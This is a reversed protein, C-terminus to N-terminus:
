QASALLAEVKALLKNYAVTLDVNYTADIVVGLKDALITMKQPVSVVQEKPSGDSHMEYDTGSYPEYATAVPSKEIQINSLTTSENIATGMAIYFSVNVIDKTPTYTLETSRSLTASTGDEAFLRWGWQDTHHTGTLDCRLTYTEGKTLCVGGSSMLKVGYISNGAGITISQNAITIRDNAGIGVAKTIDVMNKGCTTLRVNSVNVYPTYGDAEGEVSLYPYVTEAYAGDEYHYQLCLQVFEYDKSWTFAGSVSKTAGSADKYTLLMRNSPGMFYTKGDELLASLDSLIYSVPAAPTKVSGSVTVSGDSNQKFNMGNISTLRTIYPYKILNKSRAKIKVIHPVQSVDEAHIVSGNVPTRIGIANTNPATFSVIAGSDLTVNYTTVYEDDNVQDISKIGDGNTVTFTKTTGDDLVISYTDILGSSGTKSINSIGNGEIILTNGNPECMEYATVEVGEDPIVSVVYDTIRFDTINKGSLSGIKTAPSRLNSDNTDYVLEIDVHDVDTGDTFNVKFQLPRITFIVKVASGAVDNNNSPSVAEYIPIFEEAPITADFERYGLSGETSVLGYIRFGWSNRATSNTTILYTKGLTLRLQGNVDTVKKYLNCNSLGSVIESYKQNVKSELSSVAENALVTAEEIAKTTADQSMVKDTASGTEHTIAGSEALTYKGISEKAENVFENISQGAGTKLVEAHATLEAKVTEGINNITNLWTDVVEYYKGPIVSSYDMGESIVVGEFPKTNWSYEIITSTSGDEETQPTTCMFRVAFNLPGVYLTAEKPILWTFALTDDRGAVGALDTVEYVSTSHVTDNSADINIFHVQVKDCEVMDHGDIERPLEFTFRESNHDNQILTVPTESSHLIDRTNPDIIFSLDDDVVNHLHAM